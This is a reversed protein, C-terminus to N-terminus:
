PKPVKRKEYHPRFDDTAAFVLASLHEGYQDEPLSLSFGVPRGTTKNIKAVPWEGSQTNTWITAGTLADWHKAALSINVSASAKISALDETLRVKPKVDSIRYSGSFVTSVGHRKGIAKLADPDLRERGVSRLVDDEAGLELFRVGPQAEQISTMFRQTAYHNLDAAANSSFTVIGITQYPSLDIRPPIEVVIKHACAPAFVAVLMLLSLFAHVNRNSETM